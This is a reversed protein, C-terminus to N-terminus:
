MRGYCDGCSGKFFVRWYYGGYGVVESIDIWWVRVEGLIRVDDEEGINCKM